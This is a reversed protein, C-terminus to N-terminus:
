ICGQMEILPNTRGDTRRDMWGDTPLAEFECFDIFFAMPFLKIQNLPIDRGNGHLLVVVMTVVAVVMVGSEERIGFASLSVSSVIIPM